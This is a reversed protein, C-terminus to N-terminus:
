RADLEAAPLTRYKQDIVDMLEFFSDEYKSSPDGLGQQNVFFSGAVCERVWAPNGELKAGSDDRERCDRQGTSPNEFCCAGSPAVLIMPRLQVDQDLMFSDALFASQLIQQPEGGYGHLLFLVPYRVDKNEDLEYGPPLVVGYERKAGLVKSDFWTYHERESYSQGGFPTSPRPLHPWQSASWNFLTSIRNVAQATTGVHDGDGAVLQELTPTETGYLVMLNKPTRRWAQTWPKYAGTRPDKLGPIDAWDRYFKTDDPQFAKFRGYVQQATLGFNFLDRVGGDLLLRLRAVQAPTLQGLNTRPDHAWLARRGQTMDFVGNGEGFDQTGAVGDLGFDDYPEGDDHRWNGETGLPNTELDYDDHNADGAAARSESLCGGQGDELSNECGDKGVDRSREEGNDILPEGWDRRGNGNLDVALAVLVPRTALRCADSRGAFQQMVDKTNPDDHRAIAVGGKDVCAATAFASAAAADLPRAVNGRDSCFDVAVRDNRCFYLTPEGDCFTIADYKGQPNFEKNVLGKVKVPNTCADAPPRLARAPDVGPPAFRSAPNETFLNGFSLMLDTMLDVYGGRDFGNVNYAWHNFDQSFEHPLAPTRKSCAALAVPDNLKEPGQAALAELEALSCFGGLHFKDVTRLLLAADLPGGLSALADFREPHRFGLAATGIAGMSIGSLARYTVKVKPPEAPGCALAVCVLLALHRTM